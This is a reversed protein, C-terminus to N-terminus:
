VGYYDEIVDSKESSAEDDIPEEDVFSNESYNDSVQDQKPAEDV